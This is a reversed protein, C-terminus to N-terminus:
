KFINELIAQFISKQKMMRKKANEILDGLSDSMILLDEYSKVIDKLECTTITKGGYLRSRIREDADNIKKLMRKMTDLRIKGNLLNIQKKLRILDEYLQQKKETVEASVREFEKKTIEKRKKEEVEQKAKLENLKRTIEFQRERNRLEYQMAGMKLQEKKIEDRKKHIEKVRSLSIRRPKTNVM